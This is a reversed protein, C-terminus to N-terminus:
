RGWRGLCRFKANGRWSLSLSVKCFIIVRTSEKFQQFHDTIIEELVKFKPHSYVVNPDPVHTDLDDLLRVLSANPDFAIDKDPGLYDQLDQILAKFGEDNALRLHVNNKAGVSSQMSLLKNLFSRLGHIQLEELAQFLNIAVSFNSLAIGRQAPPVSNDQVFEKQKM